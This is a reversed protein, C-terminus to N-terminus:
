SYEFCQNWGLGSLIPYSIPGHRQVPVRLPQVAFM